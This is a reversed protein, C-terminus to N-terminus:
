KLFNIKLLQFNAIIAARVSIAPERLKAQPVPMDQLQKFLDKPVLRPQSSSHNTRERTSESNVM